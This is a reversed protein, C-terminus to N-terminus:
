LEELSLVGNKVSSAEIGVATHKLWQESGVIGDNRVRQVVGRDNVTHTQALSLAVAIGVGVHLVELALQM